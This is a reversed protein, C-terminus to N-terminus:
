YHPPKEDIAPTGSPENITRDLQDRYGKLLAELSDLRIQQQYIVDSLAAITEEQYSVKIELEALRDESM